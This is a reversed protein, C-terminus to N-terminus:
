SCDSYNSKGTYHRHKDPIYCFKKYIKAYRIKPSKKAHFKQGLYGSIRKHPKYKYKDLYTEPLYPKIDKYFGYAKGATKFGEYAHPVFAFRTKSGIVTAKAGSPQSSTTKILSSM